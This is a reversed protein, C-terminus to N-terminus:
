VVTPAIIRLNILQIYRMVNYTLNMLGIKVQARALGITRIIKGGMSNEQFGFVHEVRARVKSRECNNAKQESTLPCSKQGKENINSVYEANMLVDETEESRYASDAWVEPDANDPDIVTDFQQSDHVSAPTAVYNRILKHEADINIHNKYGYYSKGNKKVWKADTDKQNLKNKEWDQPVKGAKIQANEERSNRQIPVLVISADIIQGSRPQYGQKEM